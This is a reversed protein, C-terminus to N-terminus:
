ALGAEDSTENGTGAAEESDGRKLWAQRASEGEKTFESLMGGGISLSTGDPWRWSASAIEPDDCYTCNDPQGYRSVMSEFWYHASDNDLLIQGGVVRGSVISFATPSKISVGKLAPVQYVQLYKDSDPNRSAEPYRAKLDHLTSGLVVGAFEAPPPSNSARAEASLALAASVIATAIMTRVNRIIGTRTTTTSLPQRASQP